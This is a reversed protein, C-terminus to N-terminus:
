LIILDEERPEELFVQLPTTAKALVERLVEEAQEILRQEQAFQIGRLWREAEEVSHDSWLRLTTLCVACCAVHELVDAKLRSCPLTTGLACGVDHLDLGGNQLAVECYSEMSDYYRRRDLPREADRVASRIQDLLHMKLIDM